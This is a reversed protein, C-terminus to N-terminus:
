CDLYALIGGHTLRTKDSLISTEQCNKRMFILYFNGTCDREVKARHFRIVKILVM